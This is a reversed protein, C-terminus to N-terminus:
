MSECKDSLVILCYPINSFLDWCHFVLPNCYKPVKDYCKWKIVATINNSEALGLERVSCCSSFAVWKKVRLFNTIPGSARNRSLRNSSSGEFQPLQDLISLSRNQKISNFEYWKKGVATPRISNLSQTVSQTLILLSARLEFSLTLLVSKVFWQLIIVHPCKRIACLSVCM